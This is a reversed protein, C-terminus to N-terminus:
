EKQQLKYTVFRQTKRLIGSVGLTRMCVRQKGLYSTMLLAARVMGVQSTAVRLVGSQTKEDYSISLIGARAMGFTGLVQSLQRVVDASADRQLPHATMVEYAIYRKNEKLTPLLPKM